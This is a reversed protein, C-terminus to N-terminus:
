FRVTRKAFDSVGTKVPTLILISKLLAQPGLLFLLSISMIWMHNYQRSFPISSITIDKWNMCRQVLNSSKLQSFSVQSIQNLLSTFHVQYDFHVLAM